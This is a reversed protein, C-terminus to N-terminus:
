KSERLYIDILGRSADVQVTAAHQLDALTAGTIDVVPRGIKGSVKRKGEPTLKLTLMERGQTLDYRAGHVFAAHLLIQGELWLRPKGRNAGIKRVVTQLEQGDYM